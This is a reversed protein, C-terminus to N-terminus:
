PQTVIGPEQAEPRSRALAAEAEVLHRELEAPSPEVHITAALAHGMQRYGVAELQDALESRALPFVGVDLLLARAASTLAARVQDRAADRDGMRILRSALDRLEPLRALKAQADPWLSETAIAKLGDRFIGFDHELVGRGHLETAADAKMYHRQNTGIGHADALEVVAAEAACFLANIADKERGSTTAPPSSTSTHLNRRRRQRCLSITRNRGTGDSSPKELHAGRGRLLPQSLMRRRVGGEPLRESEHGFTDPRPLIEPKGNPLEEVLEIQKGALIQAGACGCGRGLQRAIRAGVGEQTPQSLMERADVPEATVRPREGREGMVGPARGM